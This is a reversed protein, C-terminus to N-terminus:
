CREYFDTKLIYLQDINNEIEGLTELCEEKNPWKKCLRNIETKCESISEMLTNKLCDEIDKKNISNRHSDIINKDAMSLKNYDSYYGIVLDEKNARFGLYPKKDSSYAVFFAIPYENEVVIKHDDQLAPLVLYGILNLIEGRGEVKFKGLGDIDEKNFKNEM